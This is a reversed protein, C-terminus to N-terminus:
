ASRREYCGCATVFVAWSTGRLFKIAGQVSRTSCPIGAAAFQPSVRCIGDQRLIRLQFCPFLIGGRLAIPSCVTRFHYPNDAAPCDRPVVNISQRLLFTGAHVMEGASRRGASLQCENARTAPLSHRFARPATWSCRRPATMDRSERGLKRRLSTLLPQGLKLLM